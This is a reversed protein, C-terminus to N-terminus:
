AMFAYLAPSSHIWTKNDVASTPLSNDAESEPQKVEPSLAGPGMPYSAPHVGSGTQVIHLAYFEQGLRSEFESGKITLGTVM